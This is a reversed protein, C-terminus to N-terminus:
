VLHDDSNVRISTKLAPDSQSFELELFWNKVSLRFGGETKMLIDREKMYNAM